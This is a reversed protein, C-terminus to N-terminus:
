KNNKYSIYDINGQITSIKKHTHLEYDPNNNPDIGNHIFGLDKISIKNKWLIYIFSFQDRPAGKMFEEYWEEMIKNCIANDHDRVILKADIQGLERPMGESKYRLLHKRTQEASVRNKIVNAIAAGEVYICNNLPHRHMAVGINGIMNIYNTINGKLEITGDIYITYRYEQFIKHANMKCYRNKLIPDNVDDPVIDNVNIWNFVSSFPLKKNSIIYFDCNDPCILPEHLDDYEDIICTYIAIRDGKVYNEKKFRRDTKKFYEIKDEKTWHIWEMNDEYFLTLVQDLNTLENLDVINSIGIDTIQSIVLSRDDKDGILVFCIIEETIRSIEEPSLCIIGDSIEKGWYADNNDCYFSISINMQELLKKGFGRGINGVGFVCVKYNKSQALEILHEVRDTDIM